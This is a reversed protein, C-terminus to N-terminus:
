FTMRLCFHPLLLTQNCRAMFIIFNDPQDILTLGKRVKLAYDEKVAKIHDVDIEM